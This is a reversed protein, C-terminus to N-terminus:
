FFFERCHRGIDPQKQLSNESGLGEDHTETEEADHVKGSNKLQMLLQMMDNREFNNLERYRIMDRVVAM